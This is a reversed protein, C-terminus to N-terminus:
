RGRTLHAFLADIDQAEIWDGYSEDDPLAMTVLNPDSLMESLREAKTRVRDDVVEDVTDISVLFTIRTEIDPSLGLRHIRDLSQLYQGANFTRDLYIAEHCTQHLSVGESMAAPNAILVMCEPDERFRRLEYERSGVRGDARSPVGGHIVAPARPALVRDHLETINGIFNSWVLSKRGERANADVLSALKEFKRPIEHRGYSLIQESLHSGPPVPAPPWITPTTEGGIAPALLGPNTAAELLYM